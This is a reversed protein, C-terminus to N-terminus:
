KKANHNGFKQSILSKFGFSRYLDIRRKLRLESIPLTHKYRNRNSELFGCVISWVIKGGFLKNILGASTTLKLLLELVSANVTLNLVKEYALSFGCLKSEGYFEIAHQNIAFNSDFWAVFPSTMNKAKILKAYKQPLSDIAVLAYNGRAGGGRRVVEVRNRNTWNRYNSETAIGSDFLERASICLRGNYYEM